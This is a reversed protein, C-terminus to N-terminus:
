RPQCLRDQALPRLMYLGSPKKYLIYNICAADHLELIIAASHATVSCTHVNIVYFMCPYLRECGWPPAPQPPRHHTCILVCVMIFM